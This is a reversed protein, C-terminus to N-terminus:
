DHRLVRRVSYDRPRGSEASARAHHAIMEGLLGFVIFQAGVVMLLLGLMLLPRNGLPQGLALKIFALYANIVFGLGFSLLGLLGFLHLPRRTYQTLFLVTALDFFGRAFRAPGFKSRGYSRPRHRVPTETVRFGRFHALVPIYRHLEGYLELEDLVERRYAKYGCNFDHLRVGTLRRVVRNFVASPLTKSLPDHRPTKWGSVLDAEDRQLPALLKGLEAPVDQLDADLTVVYAGRAAAFGAALAASKGFNRRFQIVQVRPDAEFLAALTRASEDTSGDDVFILESATSNPTDALAAVLEDYLQPLSEAENFLPVVVSLDPTAPALDLADPQPQAAITVSSV